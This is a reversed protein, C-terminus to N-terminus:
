VLPGRRLPHPFRDPITPEHSPLAIFVEFRGARRSISINLHPRITHPLDDNQPQIKFNVRGSLSHEWELGHYLSMSM